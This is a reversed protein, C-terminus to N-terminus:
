SSAGTKGTGKKMTLYALVGMVTYGVGIVVNFMLNAFTSGEAILGYYVPSTITSVISMLAFAMSFEALAPTTYDPDCIKLLMMGTITVGTNSGWCVIMREFAYNNRFVKRAIPFTIWSVLFGLVCMVSIPALLDLVASVDCSAIAACIAIDSMPGTVRAKVKKDIMWDLKLRCLVYNVLAYFWVPCASFASNVAGLASRAWYAIGCGLLIVALHITIPDISSSLSMERGISGQKEVDTVVGRATTEPIGGVNFGSIEGRDNARKIMWIGILMGGLLGVTAMTIGVSQSTEWYDLNFDQLIGGIASATGHGGAFGQSLEWGFTRYLDWGMATFLLNVGYGVVGQLCSVTSFLACMLLVSPGYSLIGNKKKGREAGMGNGLPAAAFIPVILISPLLSWTNLHDESFPILGLVRPGVILGIFGGIVSAPLLLKRFFPVQARLFTGILLFVGLVAVAKLLETFLSSSM